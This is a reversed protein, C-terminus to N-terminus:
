HPLLIKDNTIKAQLVFAEFFCLLCARDVLYLLIVNLFKIMSLSMDGGTRVITLKEVLNAPTKGYLLGASVDEHWM